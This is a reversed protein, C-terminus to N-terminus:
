NLRKDGTAFSVKQILGDKVEYVCLMEVTGLGEPFNRTILELDVVIQGMVTRSLLRAHLDPESFRTVFRARIDEHGKALREGHLTYQEADMAYTALLADIDKANYAALQRQIVELPTTPM